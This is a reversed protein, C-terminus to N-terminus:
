LYDIVCVAAGGCLRIHRDPVGCVRFMLDSALTHVSDVRLFAFLAESRRFCQARPPVRIANWGRCVSPDEPFMRFGLWDPRHVVRDSARLTSMTWVGLNAGSRAGFSFRTGVSPVRNEKRNRSKPRSVPEGIGSQLHRQHWMGSNACASVRLGAWAVRAAVPKRSHKARRHKGRKEDTGSGQRLHLYNRSRTRNRM